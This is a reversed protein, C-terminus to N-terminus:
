RRRGRKYKKTFADEIKAKLVEEAVASAIVGGVSDKGGIFFRVFPYLLLFPGLTLVLFGSFVIEEAILYIGIGISALGGWYFLSSRLRTVKNGNIAKVTEYLPGSM